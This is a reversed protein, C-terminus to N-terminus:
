HCSEMANTHQVRPSVFPIGLNLGRLIFIIAIAAIFVPAFRYLRKKIQLGIFNGSFSVALMMPFTGLGFLGMYLAGMAAKGSVIAGALAVYVLGCPLFGNAIGAMFQSMLSKRRLTRIFFTKLRSLLNSPYSRNALLSLKPFFLFLLLVAGIGISFIQQFGALTIGHGIMGMVGGMLSYTTLRGLNYLARGAILKKPQGNYVPLALAIPGCMGICHLSGLLGLM